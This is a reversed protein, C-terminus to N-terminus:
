NEMIVIILYGLSNKIIVENKKSKYIKKNDAAYICEYGENELETEFDVTLILSDLTKINNKYRLSVMGDEYNAKVLDLQLNKQLQGIQKIEEWKRKPINNVNEEDKIDFYYKDKLKNLEVYEIKDFSINELKSQIEELYSTKNAESLTANIVNSTNFGIVEGDKNYLASGVDSSALSFNSKIVDNSNGLYNGYNVSFNSNNKSTITFVNDKSNITNGFKVPVGVEEELKLLVVDYSTDITIVGSVKYVNGNTDNVYIFESTNLMQLFLSWTTAIVGKRVFFGSGYSNVDANSLASISVNQEHYMDYFSKLEEESVAESGAITISNFKGGVNDGNDEDNGIQKFYESIKDGSTFSPVYLRLSNRVRKLYFTLVMDDKKEDRLVNSLYVYSLIGDSIDTTYIYKIYDYSLDSAYLDKIFSEILISSTLTDFGNTDSLVGENMINKRKEEYSEKSFIIELLSKTYKKVDEDSSSASKFPANIKYSSNTEALLTDAKNALDIKEPDIVFEKAVVVNSIWLLGILLFFRKKM